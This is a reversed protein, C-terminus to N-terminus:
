RDGDILECEGPDPCDATHGHKCHRHGPRLYECGYFRQPQPEQVQGQQNDTTM